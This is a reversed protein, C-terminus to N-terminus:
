LSLPVMQQFRQNLEAPVRIMSHATRDVDGSGSRSHDSACHELDHTRGHQIDDTLWM